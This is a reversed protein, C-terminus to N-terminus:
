GFDTEQSRRCPLPAPLSRIRGRRPPEEGELYVDITRDKSFLGHVHAQLGPVARALSPVNLQGGHFRRVADSAHRPRLVVLLPGPGPLPACCPNEPGPERFTITAVDGGVSAGLKFLDEPAYNGVDRCTALLLRSSRLKASM